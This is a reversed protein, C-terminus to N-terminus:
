PLIKDKPFSLDAARGRLDPEERFNVEGTLQKIFTVLSTAM